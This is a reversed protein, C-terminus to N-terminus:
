KRPLTSLMISSITESMHIHKPKRTPTCLVKLFKAYSPIHQIVDVLPITITIQRFAELLTDDSDSAPVRPRSLLQPYPVSPKYVEPNPETRIEEDPAEEDESDEEPIITPSPHDDREELSDKCSKHDTHPGVLVKGSRLGSIVHAEESASDVCVKNVNYTRSSSAQCVNRPNALPQSPLQDIFEVRKGKRQETSADSCQAKAGEVRDLRDSVENLKSMMQALASMVFDVLPAPPPVAQPPTVARPISPAFSTPRPNGMHQPASGYSQHYSMHQENRQHAYTPNHFSSYGQNSISRGAQSLGPYTTPNPRFSYSGQIAMMPCDLEIHEFSSCHLCPSVDVHSVPALGDFSPQIKLSYMILNQAETLKEIKDLLMCTEAAKADLMGGKAPASRGGFSKAVHHDSNEAVLEILELAEDEYKSMFTGGSAADLLYRDLAGLGDYFIQTIEHKPIGHYPCQRLLDRLREWAEYFVEGQWQSFERIACRVVSTKGVSYYKRLFADKVSRKRADNFGM